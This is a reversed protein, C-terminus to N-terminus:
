AKKITKAIDLFTEKVLKYAVDNKEAQLKKALKYLATLVDKASKQAVELDAAQQENLNEVVDGSVKATQPHAEHVIDEKPSVDYKKEEAVKERQSLAQGQRRHTPVSAQQRSKFDTSLNAPAMYQQLKQLAQDYYGQETDPYNLTQLHQQLNALAKVNGRAAELDAFLKSWSAPMSGTPLAAPAPVTTGPAFAPPPLVQAEKKLACNEQMIRGFERLVASDNWKMQKM